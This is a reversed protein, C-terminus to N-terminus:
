RRASSRQPKRKLRRLAEVLQPIRLFRELEGRVVVRALARDDLLWIWRRPLSRHTRYHDLMYSAADRELLRRQARLRVSEADPRVM